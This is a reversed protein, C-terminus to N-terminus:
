VYQYESEELLQVMPTLKSCLDTANQEDFHAELYQLLQNLSLNPPSELVHRLTLSPIMARIVSSVIESEEYGTEQAEDIQHMLSVYTLKDKQNAEGIQGKIKLEKRLLSTRLNLERLIPSFNNGQGDNDANNDAGIANKKGDEKQDGQATEHDGNYFKLDEILHKFKDCKEEDTKREEDLKGELVKIIIYKLDRRGKSTKIQETSFTVALM